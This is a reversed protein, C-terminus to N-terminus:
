IWHSLRRFVDAKEDQQGAAALAHAIAHATHLPRDFHKSDCNRPVLPAALLLPRRQRDDLVERGARM